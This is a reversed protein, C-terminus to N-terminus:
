ALSCLDNSAMLSLDPRVSIGHPNFGDDPPSAPHEAVLQLDKAFEAVRGPADGHAGGMMTVLFGGDPLSYFEDTIASQPPDASSIFKPTEPHSVDFFFVEKQGKLVSLLGGCALTKGDHSLGVHHPENGAAGPQPLPVTTIVKGYNTSDEDFNVVALFDPNTRAQDGAWVFLYKEPEDERDNDKDQEERQVTRLANARGSRLSLAGWLVLGGAIFLMVFKSLTNRNLTLYTM